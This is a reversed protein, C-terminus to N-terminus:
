VVRPTRFQALARYGGRHARGPRRVRVHADDYPFGSGRVEGLRTAPDRRGAPGQNGLLMALRGRGGSAIMM